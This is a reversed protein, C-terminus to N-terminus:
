GPRQGAPASEPASNVGFSPAGSRDGIPTLSRRYRVDPPTEANLVGECAFGMHRYFGHARHNADGELTWVTAAVFGARALRDCAGSVLIRGGGRGQRVPLVYLRLIQGVCSPDDDDDETPGFECFGIVDDSETLALLGGGADIRSDIQQAWDRARHDSLRARVLDGPVIGTYTDAWTDVHIQRLREADQHRADRLQV